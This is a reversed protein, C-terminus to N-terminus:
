GPLWGPTERGPPPRSARGLDPGSRAPGSGPPDAASGDPDPPGDPSRRLPRGATHAPREPAPRHALRGPGDLAVPAPRPGPARGGYRLTTSRPLATDAGPRAVAGPGGFVGPGCSPAWMPS